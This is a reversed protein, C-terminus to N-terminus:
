PRREAVLAHVAGQCLWSCVPHALPRTRTPILM